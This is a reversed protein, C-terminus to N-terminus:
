GEYDVTKGDFTWGDESQLFKKKSATAAIAKKQKHGKVYDVVAKAVAPYSKTEDDIKGVKLSGGAEEVVEKLAEGALSEIDDDGEDDSDDDDGKKASKNSGKAASGGKKKAAPEEDDDEADADDDDDDAPKKKGKGKAKSKPKEDEEDDDDDSDDSDDDDDADDDDDDKKSSSKSKGKSSKKPKEDDDDEEDDGDGDGETGLEILCPVTKERKPAAGPKEDADTIAPRPVRKLLGEVGVLFEINADVDDEPFEAEGQLKDLFIGFNSGDNIGTQGNQPILEHEDKSIGWGNGCSYLEKRWKGKDDKQNFTLEACVKLDPKKGKAAMNAKVFRAARIKVWTPTTPWLGGGKQIASRKFSVGAAGM